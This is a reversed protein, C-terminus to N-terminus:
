AVDGDGTQNSNPMPSMINEVVVGLDIVKDMKPLSRGTHGSDWVYEAVNRCTIGCKGDSWACKVRPRVRGYKRLIQMLSWRERSKLMMQSYSSM